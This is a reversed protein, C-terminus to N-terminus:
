WHWGRYYGISPAVVLRPQRERYIVTKPESDSANLVNDEPKVDRVQYKKSM